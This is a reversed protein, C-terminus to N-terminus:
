FDESILFDRIISKKSKKDLSRRQENHKLRLTLKKLVKELQEERIERSATSTSSKKKDTEVTM